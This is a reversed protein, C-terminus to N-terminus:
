LKNFTFLRTYTDTISEIVEQEADINLLVYLM